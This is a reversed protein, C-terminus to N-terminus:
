ELVEIPYTLAQVPCICVCRPGAEYGYCLDCKVVVKRIIDMHMAKFPCAEVCAWCGTCKHEDLLVVGDINQKLSDTPCAGVCKPHKCQRCIVPIEKNIFQDIYLVVGSAKPRVNGTKFISCALACSECGICKEQNIRIPKAM